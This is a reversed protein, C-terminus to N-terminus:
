FRILASVNEAMASPQMKRTHRGWDLYCGVAEHHLCANLTLTKVDHVVDALQLFGLYLM